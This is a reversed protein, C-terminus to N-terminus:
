LKSSVTSEILKSLHIYMMPTDYPKGLPETTFFVDALPPSAPEIGPDPLDGPSPCALQELIRAQLIGHVTSGPPSSGMPDCLTACSKAVLCCHKRQRLLVETSWRSVGARVVSIKVTEVTKGKGSHRTTPIM